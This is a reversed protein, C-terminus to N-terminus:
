RRPSSLPSPRSRSRGAGRSREAPKPLSHSCRAPSCGRSAPGHCCSGRGPASRAGMLAGALSALALMGSASTSTSCPGSWCHGPSLSRGRRRAVLPPVATVRLESDFSSPGRLLRLRGVVPDGGPAHQGLQAFKRCCCFGVRSASPSFSSWRRPSTAPFAGVLFHEAPGPLPMPSCSATILFGIRLCRCRRIRRCSPSPGRPLRRGLRHRDPHIRRHRSPARVFAASVPLSFAACRCCSPPTHMARYRPVKLALPRAEAQASASASRSPAVASLRRAAVAEACGPGASSTSSSRRPILTGSVVWGCFDRPLASRSCSATSAPYTARASSPVRASGLAASRSM